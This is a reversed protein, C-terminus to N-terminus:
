SHIRRNEKQVLETDIRNFIFEIYLGFSIINRTYVKYNESIYMSINKLIYKYCIRYEILSLLFDAISM